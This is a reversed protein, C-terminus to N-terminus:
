LRPLLDASGELHRAAVANATALRDYLPLDPRLLFAAAFVDGTGAPNTATRIPRAPAHARHGEKAIVASGRDGLHLVVSEAGAEFISEVVADSAPGSPPGTVFHTLERENCHVTCVQKLIARVAEIREAIVRQDVANWMPDWNLDLSTEMGAARARRLLRENGGALMTPAFWVDARYLIGCGRAILEDLDVDGEELVASSPLCSVFHRQHNDWSLAISRGTPEKKEILNTVVGFRELHNRLKKGTDDRGICGIFHVRGGLRAAALAVNAGGGGVTDFIADVSTEGDCLVNPSSRIPATRIDLNINGVVAIPAASPRWGPDQSPEWYGPMRPELM